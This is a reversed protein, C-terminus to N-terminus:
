SQMTTLTYAQLLFVSQRDELFLWLLEAWLLVLVPRIDKEIEFTSIVEILEVAILFFLQQRRRRLNKDMVFSEHAVLRSKEM